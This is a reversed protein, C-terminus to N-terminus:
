FKFLRSSDALKGNRFLVGEKKLLKTKRLIAIGVSEGQFGGISLDSSIVRHCPVEPAFPNRKLAQGIARCSRCGVEEALAGYTSVSGFPIKAVENYVKRQFSSIDHVTKRM